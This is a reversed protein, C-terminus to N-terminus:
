SKSRGGPGQVESGGIGAAVELLTQRVWEASQLPGSSQVPDFNRRVVEVELEFPLQVVAVPFEHAQLTRRLEGIATEWGDQDGFIGEYWSLASLLRLYAEPMAYSHATRIMEWMEDYYWRGGQQYLGLRFLSLRSMFQAFVQTNQQAVEYAQNYLDSADGFRGVLEYLLGQLNLTEARDAVSGHVDLLMLTSTLRDSASDLEGRVMEIMSLRNRLRVQQELSGQEEFYELAQQCLRRAPSSQGQCLNVQSLAAQCRAIGTNDGRNKFAPLARLILNHAEEVNLQDLEYEGLALLAWAIGIPDGLRQKITLAQEILAKAETPQRYVLTTHGLDLLTEAEADANNVARYFKLAQGFRDHASQLLGMAMDVRGLRHIAQAVLGYDRHENGLRYASEFCSRTKAWDGRRASVRGGGLLVRGYAVSDRESLLTRARHFYRTAEEFRGEQLALEARGCCAIGECQADGEQKALGIATDFYDSSPGVEHLRRCLEGLSLNAQKCLAQQEPNDASLLALLEQYLDRARLYEHRTEAQMAGDRLHRVALGVEGGAQFHRALEAADASFDNLDRAASEKAQAAILHLSPDAESEFFEVLHPHIFELRDNSDWVQRLLGERRWLELSWSMRDLLEHQRERRLVRELVAPMFDEGVLAARQLVERFTEQGYKRVVQDVRRLAIKDLSNPLYLKSENLAVDDAAQRGLHEAEDVLYRVVMGLWLPNGRSLTLCRRVMERQMDIARKILRRCDRPGLAGLRLERYRQHDLRNLREIQLRLERNEHREETRFTALVFIPHKTAGESSSALRWILGLSGEDAWHLNELVLMVPRHEALSRLLGELRVGCEELQDPRDGFGNFLFNSLFNLLYFDQIEFKELGNRIQHRMDSSEHTRVDLLGSIATRVGSLFTPNQPLFGGKILVGKSFQENFLEAYRQLLATKGIGAEGSVTVIVVSSTNKANDLVGRFEQVESERGVFEEDPRSSIEAGYSKPEAMARWSDTTRIEATHVEVGGTDEVKQYARVLESAEQPRKKPDKEVCRAVVRGLFTKQLAEPLPPCRERAQKLLVQMKDAGDFAREGTLIEYLILGFSYIDSATTTGKGTAQEPAMYHPTGPARRKETFKPADIPAEGTPILPKSSLNKVLGFDLVKVYDTEGYQESLFLNSPKLDRHVMGRTHAESLSKLIQHSINYCREYALAGEARLLQSLTKGELWEMVLFLLGEATQGYDFVTITNPHRLQSTLLAEQRFQEVYDRNAFIEPLLIKIAVERGLTDQVAKYVAGFGGLSVRDIVTYREALRDGNKPMQISTNPPM